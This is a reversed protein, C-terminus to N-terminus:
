GMVTLSSYRGPSSRHSVPVVSDQSVNVVIKGSSKGSQIFRLAHEINGIGYEHIPHVPKYTGAKVHQMVQESIEQGRSKNARSGPADIVLTLDVGTFSANKRFPYMPLTRRSDIDSRGIEVFRGFHAITDWSAQLQKGALSNLVVDVGRNNTAQMVREAFSTDRSYFIHSEPIGYVEELLQKKALSGVTAFIEAGVQQAVQIAAQGTGGSAAHILVKENPQLRAVQILSFYATCFATPISAAQAFSMQDPIVTVRDMTTRVFTRYADFVAVAVRTGPLIDGCASGAYVVTGACETGLADTDIRGLLTLCDKFNVGISHVRVIVENSGLHADIPMEESFQLTDLLGLARIGLQLNRNGVPQEVVPQTTRRFIHENVFKSSVVRNIHLFSSQELYEPEVDVRLDLAKQTAKFITSINSATRTPEQDEIGLTVIQTSNNEIRLVRILGTVIGYEPSVTYSNQTVWIISRASCLVKQLGSFFESTPEVLVPQEIELLMILDRSGLDTRGVADDFSLTEPAMGPMRLCTNIQEVLQMQAQSDQKAVILPASLQGHSEQHQETDDTATSIFYSWMHCNESGYDCMELDVGSFQNSKLLVDWQSADACPSLAEARWPEVSLWWGPLLGFVFGTYVSSPSTLEKLILKGGPKLLKRVNRLTNSLDSTAHLVMDAVIVDFEHAPFGQELPDKEINLLRFQMNDLDSFRARAKELFSPGIDTFVYQGFRPGHWSHLVELMTNTSGGTGAGIELVKIDPRKHALVDVLAQMSKLPRSEYLMEDYFDQMLQEDKFMVALPDLQGTLIKGLDRGVEVYLKGAKQSAARECLAELPGDEYICSDILDVTEKPGSSRVSAITAKLWSVYSVLEPTPPQDDGLAMLARVGLVISAAQWDRFYEKPDERTDRYQTCYQALQDTTLLDLDPRWIMHAALHKPEDSTVKSLTEDGVATYEFDDIKLAVEHTAQRLVSISAVASRRSPMSGQAHIVENFSNHGVGSASVWIKNVRRPVMTRVRNNPMAQAIHFAADLVVPHVICYDEYPILSARVEGEDSYSVNELRQFTPGFEAGCTAKINEYFKDVKQTCLQEAREHGSRIHNLKELESHPDVESAVRGYDASITGHCVEESTEDRRWTAIRFQYQVLAKDTKIPTLSIEVETGTPTDNLLIPAIFEVNELVFAMPLRDCLIQKAAEIAMACMGAGPYINAGNIVHDKIWPQEDTRLILRWRRDLLAGDIIPVGLFKNFGNKQLRMERNIRNEEWYLVSHDFPYKPLHTLVKPASPSARFWNTLLDVNLSANECYLRGCANLFTEKAPKGRVLASTYFVEKSREHFDLIQRLPAKLTSHPGIEVIGSILPHDLHSQDLKWTTQSQDQVSSSFCFSAAESFKVQSVMNEDWYGPTTAVEKELLRGTVSSVMRIGKAGPGAELTGLLHIYEASIQRMQPSHYGLGVQLQRVFVGQKGLYASLIDLHKQLAAVTINSPSNVCSVTFSETLSPEQTDTLKELHTKLDSPSLGVSLMSHREGDQDALSAALEGRYYAIKIASSRDILGACYLQM